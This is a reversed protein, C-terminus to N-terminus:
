EFGERDLLSASGGEATDVKPNLTVGQMVKGLVIVRVSSNSNSNSNINSNSNSYVIVM